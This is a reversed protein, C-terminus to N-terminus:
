KKVHSKSNITLEIIKEILVDANIPKSIYDNMGFSLCKEREGAMSHATMAVIPINSKLNKRIFTTAEYGNMIPMEMDMLVIDFNTEKLKDIALSGNEAVQVKLYYESFLSLILMINLRNDEVLLINITSLYNMDYKKETNDQTQIVEASKKYPISFTFTYGENFKNKVSLDSGIHEKGTRGTITVIAQNVETIKDKTNIAVLSDLSAKILSRAYESSQKQEASTITKTTTKM